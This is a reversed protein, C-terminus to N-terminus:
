DDAFLPLSKSDKFFSITLERRRALMNIASRQGIGQLDFSADVANYRESTRLAQADLFRYVFCYSGDLRGLLPEVRSRVTQTHTRLSFRELVLVDRIPDLTALM